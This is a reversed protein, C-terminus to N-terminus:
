WKFSRSSFNLEDCKAQAEAFNNTVFIVQLTYGNMVEFILVGSDDQKKVNIFYNM